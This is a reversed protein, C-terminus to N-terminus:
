GLGYSDVGAPWSPYITLKAQAGWECTGSDRCAAPNQGKHEACVYNDWNQVAEALSPHMQRDLEVGVGHANHNPRPNFRRVARPTHGLEELLRLFEEDAGAPLRPDPANNFYLTSMALSPWLPDGLFGLRLRPLWEVGGTTATPGNCALLAGCPQETDYFWTLVATVVERMLDTAVPPAITPM